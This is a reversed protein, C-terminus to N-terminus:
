VMKWKRVKPQSNNARKKYNTLILSGGHQVSNQNHM